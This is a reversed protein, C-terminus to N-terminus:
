LTSLKKYLVDSVEFLPPRVVNECLGKGHLIAKIGGPSGEKFILTMMEYISYHLSRAATFDGSLAAKVMSSFEKPQAHAAVSIVGDFGCAILPMTLSDDGSIMLFDNPKDKMIEMCQEMNGSAEKMGIINTHNSLTLTTESSMNMGTRGPVNYLILPLPSADAIMTYHRIIGNQNPKNYYPSVSLIAAFHQQLYSKKGALYKQLQLTNNGGAGLVLPTRGQVKEIVFAILQEKEQDDLTVSEGTTGLIVLYDIGGSILHEIIRSLSDYDIELSQKFPTLLAVGTGRLANNKM